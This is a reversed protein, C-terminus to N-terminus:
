GPWSARVTTGARRRSEIVFSGGSLEVREKMNTLGMGRRYPDKDKSDLDIGQGTDGIALEIKDGIKKLSFRVLNARSHKAVNNLAEQAVRYIVIKLPEPVDEEQLDIEGDIRVGPNLKEFERCFWSMTALIGLEDLMAPRLSKQIRRVEEIANQVMPLVTKLSEVGAQTAGNRMANEVSIKLFALPQGVSDHIEGALRKRESEQAKLLQSSLYRLEAESRKLEDEARKRENIEKRLEENAKALETTREEVRRELEEHAKRLEDEARKRETIHQTLQRFLFFYLAPSILVILIASDFLIPFWTPLPPFFSLIGMVLAEGVFVSLAILILLRFPSHSITSPMVPLEGSHYVSSEKSIVLRNREFTNM